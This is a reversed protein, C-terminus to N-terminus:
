VIVDKPFYLTPPTQQSAVAILSNCVYVLGDSTQPLPKVTMCLSSGGMQVVVYIIEVIIHYVCGPINYLQFFEGNIYQRFFNILCGDLYIM